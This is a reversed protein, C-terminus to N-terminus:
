YNYFGDNDARTIIMTINVVDSKDDILESSLESITMLQGNIITDVKAIEEIVDIYTEHIDTLILQESKSGTIQTNIPNGPDDIFTSIETPSVIKRKKGTFYARPNWSGNDGSYFGGGYQLRNQSDSYRFEVLGKDKSPDKVNFIDSIYSKDPTDIGFFIIYEGPTNITTSFVIIQEPQSWTSPTINNVNLSGVLTGDSKYLLATPNQGSTHYEIEISKGIVYVPRYKVPYVGRQYQIQQTQLDFRPYYSNYDIPKDLDRFRLPNIYPIKDAM